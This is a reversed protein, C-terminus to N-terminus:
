SNFTKKNKSPTKGRLIHGYGKVFLIVMLISSLFDTVPQAYWLGDTGIAKPLFYITLALIVCQRAINLSVAAQVKGTLMMFGIGFTPIAALPLLLMYKRIGNVAIGALEVDRNFLGVVFEPFIWVLLTGVALIMASSAVALSLTKMTRDNRKKAWNFGIIPQFGQSIGYVPMLFISAISAIVTMAGVALEGGYLNLSYNSVIQAISISLQNSFPVLGILVIAKMTDPQLKFNQKMLRLTAKRRRFYFFGLIVTVFQSLVTAIAAGQIGMHLVLIFLADLGINLVCGTLTIIASFAPSGDSRVLIPFAFGLMNFVTGLVIITIFAKAYPLTQGQIGLLGLIQNQFILYLVTITIGAVVTLLIANGATNEAEEQKGEGLRITINSAAGFAILASLALIVTTIPITLGIGTLALAGIDPINGIFIRDIVTYLSNVFLGLVAPLSYQVLLKAVPKSELENIKNM